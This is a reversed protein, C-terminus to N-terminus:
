KSSQVRISDLVSYAEQLQRDTVDRGILLEARFTRGSDSFVIDHLDVLCDDGDGPITEGLSASFAEPRPIARLAPSEDGGERIHIRLSTLYGPPCDIMEPEDLKAKTHREATLLSFEDSSVNGTWGVPLVATLGTGDPGVVQGSSRASSRSGGSGFWITSGITFVVFVGVAIARRATM